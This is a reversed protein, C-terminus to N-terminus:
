VFYFRSRVFLTLFIKDNYILLIQIRSFFLESFCKQKKEKSLIVARTHIFYIDKKLYSRYDFIALFPFPCSTVLPMVKAAFHNVTISTVRSRYEGCSIFSVNTERRKIERIKDRRKQM